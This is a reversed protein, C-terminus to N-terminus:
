KSETILRMGKEYQERLTKSPPVPESNEKYTEAINMEYAAHMCALGIPERDRASLSEDAIRLLLDRTLKPYVQLMSKFMPMTFIDDLWATSDPIYSQYTSKIWEWDNALKKVYSAYKKLFDDSWLDKKWKARQDGGRQKRVTGWLVPDDKDDKDCLWNRARLLYKLDSAILDEVSDLGHMTIERKFGSYVVELYIPCEKIKPEYCIRDRLIPIIMNPTAKQTLRWYPYSDPNESEGMEIGFLECTYNQHDADLNGWCNRYAVTLRKKKRADEPVQLLELLAEDDEYRLADLSSRVWPLADYWQVSCLWCEDGWEQTKTSDKHKEPEICPVGYIETDHQVGGVTRRRRM